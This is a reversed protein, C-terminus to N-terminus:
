RARELVRRSIRCAADLARTDEGPTGGDRAMHRGRTGAARAQQSVGVGNRVRKWVAGVVEQHEGDYYGVALRQALAHSNDGYEGARGHSSAGPTCSSQTNSLEIGM